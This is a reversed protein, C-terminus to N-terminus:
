QGGGKVGVKIGAMRLRMLRLRPNAKTWELRECERVHKWWTNGNEFLVPVLNPPCGDQRTVIGDIKGNVRVASRLPFQSDRLHILRKHLEEYQRAAALLEPSM